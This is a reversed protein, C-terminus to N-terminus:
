KKSRLSKKKQFKQKNEAEVKVPAKIATPKDTDGSGGFLKGIIVLGVLILFWTKKYFPKKVKQM